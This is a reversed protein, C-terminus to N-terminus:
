KRRLYQIDGQSGLQDVENSTIKSMQPFERFALLSITQDDITRLDQETLALANPPEQGSPFIVFVVNGDWIDAFRTLTFSINGLAPDAVYVHNNHIDRIVVFHKFGAYVIPVLAPHELEDLDALTAKFGGSKYGLQGVYRKMDLLSFGRRAAINDAEGYQLMGEMVQKEQLNRGLYYDLLTTLAASGCSYDYAQHIVNRFQAVSKPELVVSERMPGNPVLTQTMNVTGAAPTKLDVAETFGFLAILSGILIELM